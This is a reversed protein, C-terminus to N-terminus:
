TINPVMQDRSLNFVGDCHTTEESSVEEDIEIMGAIILGYTAIILGHTITFLQKLELGDM